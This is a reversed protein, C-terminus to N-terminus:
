FFRQRLIPKEMLTKNRMRRIWSVCFIEEDSTLKVSATHTHTHEYKRHITGIQAQFVWLERTLELATLLPSRREGTEVGQPSPPVLSVMTHMYLIQHTHTFMHGGGGHFFFFGNHHFLLLLDIGPPDAHTGAVRGTSDPLIEVGEAESGRTAWWHRWMLPRKETDEGDRSDIRGDSSEDWKNCM